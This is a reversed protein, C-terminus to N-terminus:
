FRFSTRLTLARPAAVEIASGVSGNVFILEDFLNEVNLSFNIRENLRYFLAADFRTFAPLILPDPATRTRAGNSGLREDQRIMGVGFGFGRMFSETFDYRSWLNYSWRPSKEARSNPIPATSIASAPAEGTYIADLYSIAGTIRWFPRPAFDTTLEVGRSRRTGAEVFYRVGNPNFDGM